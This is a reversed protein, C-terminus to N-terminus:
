LFPSTKIILYILLFLNILIITQLFFLINSKNMKYSIFYLDKKKYFLLFLSFISYIIPQSYRVIFLSMNPWNKSQRYDRHKRKRKFENERRMRGFGERKERVCEFRYWYFSSRSSTLRQITTFNSCWTQFENRFMRLTPIQASPNSLIERWTM